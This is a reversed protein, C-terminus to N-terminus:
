AALMAIALDHPDKGTVKVSSFMFSDHITTFSFNDAVNFSLINKNSFIHSGTSVTCKLLVIVLVTLQVWPITPCM